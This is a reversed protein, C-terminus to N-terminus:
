IFAFKFETKEIQNCALALAFALDAHGGDDHPALYRVNGLETVSKEISHLEDLLDRHDPLKLKKDAFLNRLDLIMREKNNASFPIPVVKTGIKQTLMDLMPVGPGSEDIFIKQPELNKNLKEILEIQKDYTERTSAMFFMRYRGEDVREVGVISTKDVKRAFDIGLFVPNFSGYPINGSILRIEEDVCSELLDYPFIVISEDIFGCNYTQDVQISSLYPIQEEVARKYKPDQKARETWPIRHVKFNNKGLCADEYKEFFFKARGYPMGSLSMSGDKAALSGMTAEYIQTGERTPFIGAEDIKVADADFGMITSPNNPLSWLESGHEFVMADRKHTLLPIEEGLLKQLKSFAKHIYWMM